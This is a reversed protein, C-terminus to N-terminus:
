NFIASTNLHTKWLLLLQHSAVDTFNSLVPTELPKAPLMICTDYRRKTVIKSPMEYNMSQRVKIYSKLNILVTEQPSEQICRTKRLFLPWSRLSLKDDPFNTCCLWTNFSLNILNAAANRTLTSINGRTPIIYENWSVIGVLKSAGFTRSSCDDKISLSELKSDKEPFNWSLVSFSQLIDGRSTVSELFPFLSHQIGADYIIFNSVGIKSYFSIFEIINTKSYGSYDPKVCIVPGVFAKPKIFLPSFVNDLNSPTVWLVGYPAGRDPNNKVHCKLFYKRLSNKGKNTKSQADLDYKFTGPASKIIDGEEFWVRCKYNSFSSIPGIALTRVYGGDETDEWFSSYIYHNEIKTWSSRPELFNYKHVQSEKFDSRFVICSSNSIPPRGFFNLYFLVSKLKLYEHRYFLFSFFCFFSVILLLLQQYKRM